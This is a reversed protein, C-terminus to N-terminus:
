DRRLLLAIAGAVVGAILGALITQRTDLATHVEGQIRGGLLVATRIQRARIDQGALVGVSAQELEVHRGLVVMSGGDLAVNDAQVAGAISNSMWVENARVLGLASEHGDVLSARVDSAASMHLDAQDAAIEGASSQKMHVVDAKVSELRSQELESIQPERPKSKSTSRPM